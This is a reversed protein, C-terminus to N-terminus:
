SAPKTQKPAPQLPSPQGTPVDLWVGDAAYTAVEADLTDPNAALRHLAEARRRQAHM